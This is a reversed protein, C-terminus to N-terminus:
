YDRLNFPPPNVMVKAAVEDGPAVAAAPDVGTPRGEGERTDSQSIIKGLGDALVAGSRGGWQPPAVFGARHEAVGASEEQLQMTAGARYRELRIHDLAPVPDLVRALRLLFLHGEGRGGM